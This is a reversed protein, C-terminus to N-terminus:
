RFPYSVGNFKLLSTPCEVRGHKLKTANPLNITFPLRLIRDINETGTTGGLAKTLYATRAEVDAIAAKTAPPFEMGKGSKNKTRMPELAIPQQLRWLPQLGNGSDIVATPPLSYAALEATYRAKAAQPTEDDKPDLDSFL